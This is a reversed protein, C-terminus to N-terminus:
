KRGWTGGGGRSSGKMFDHRVERTKQCAECKWVERQGHMDVRDLRFARAGCFPCVDGPWKGNLKEELDAVRAKLEDLESPITQLRNWIPVRDFAKLVDDVIGM